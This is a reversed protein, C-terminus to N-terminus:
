RLDRGPLPRDRRNEREWSDPASIGSVGGRASIRALAEAMRRGRGGGSVGEGESVIVKVEADLDPGPREGSWELRDGRLIAKYVKGM